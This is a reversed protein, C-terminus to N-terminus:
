RGILRLRRRASRQLHSVALLTVLSVAQRGLAVRGTRQRWTPTRSGRRYGLVYGVGLTLVLAAIVGIATM